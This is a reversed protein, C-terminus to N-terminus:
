VTMAYYMFITIIIILLRSLVIIFDVLIGFCNGMKSIMNRKIDTSRQFEVQRYFNLIRVSILIVQIGALAIQVLQLMQEFPERVFTLNTQKHLTNDTWKCLTEDEEECTYDTVATILKNMILVQIIIQTLDLFQILRNAPSQENKKLKQYFFRILAQVAPIGYFVDNNSQYIAMLLNIGVPQRNTKENEFDLLWDLRM